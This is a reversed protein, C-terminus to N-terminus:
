NGRRESLLEFTHSDGGHQVNINSIKQNHLLENSRLKEILKPVDEVKAVSGKLSVLNQKAGLKFHDLQAAAPMSIRISNVTELFGTTRPLNEQSTMNVMQQMAQVQQQLEFRQNNLRYPIERSELQSTLTALQTQINMNKQLQQTNLHQVQKTQLWLWGSSGVLVITIMLMAILMNNFALWNREIKPKLPLLNITQKM